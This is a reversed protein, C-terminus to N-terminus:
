GVVEIKIYMTGGGDILLWGVKIGEMTNKGPGIGYGSCREGELVDCTGPYRVDGWPSAQEVLKRDITLIYRGNGM